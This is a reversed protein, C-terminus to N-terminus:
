VYKERYERWTGKTLCRLLLAVWVLTAFDGIMQLNSVSVAFISAVFLLFTLAHSVLGNGPTRMIYVVAPIMLYILRYDYNTSALYCVLFVLAFVIFLSDICDRPKSLVSVEPLIIRFRKITLHLLFSTSTLMLIGILDQMRLNIPLGLRNLYLGFIPNGFAIDIPRPFSEIRVIDIAILITSGIFFVISLAKLAQRKSQFYLWIFLPVPYFKTLSVLM